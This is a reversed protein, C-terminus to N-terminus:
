SRLKRTVERLPDRQQPYHRRFAALLYRREEDSLPKLEGAPKPSWRDWPKGTVMLSLAPRDIPCVSHWGDRERMEYTAGAPLLLTAAIPPPADGPGYGVDMEYSGELIKVVSPWPHPHFLAGNWACPHIRHLYVRFGSFDRWLREVRPPEYDVDLSQWESGNALLQPLVREIEAIITRMM